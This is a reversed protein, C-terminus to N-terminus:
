REGSNQAETEANKAENVHENAEKPFSIRIIKASCPATKCTESRM